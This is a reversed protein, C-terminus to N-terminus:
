TYQYFDFGFGLRDSETHFRTLKLDTDMHKCIM